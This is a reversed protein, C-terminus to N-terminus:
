FMAFSPIFKITKAKLRPYRDIKKKKIVEM